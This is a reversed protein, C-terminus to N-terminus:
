LAASSGVPEPSSSPCPGRPNYLIRPKVDNSLPPPFELRQLAYTPISAGPPPTPGAAPHRHVQVSGTGGSLDLVTHGDQRVGRRRRIESRGLRVGDREPADAIM